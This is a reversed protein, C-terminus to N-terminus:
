STFLELLQSPHREFRRHAQRLSQELPTLRMKENSGAVAHASSWLRRTPREGVVSAWTATAPMRM